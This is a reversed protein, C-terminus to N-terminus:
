KKLRLELLLGPIKPVEVRLGLSKATEQLRKHFSSDRTIISVDKDKNILSLALAVFKGKHGFTDFMEEGKIQSKPLLRFECSETLKGSSPKLLRLKEPKQDFEERKGYNGGYEKQIDKTLFVILRSTARNGLSGKLLQEWFYKSWQYKEWNEREREREKKRSCDLFVETDIILNIEEM